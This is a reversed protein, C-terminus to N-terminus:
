SVRPPLFKRRLLGVILVGLLAGFLDAIWDDMGASRGPLFIQHIEDAAGISVALLVALWARLRLGGHLLFAISAFVCAHALKDWPPPILGVAVPQAGGIFLGAALALVSTVAFAIRWRSYRLSKLRVVPPDYRDSPAM